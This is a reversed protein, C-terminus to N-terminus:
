RLEREGIGVARVGPPGESIRVPLDAAGLWRRLLAADGALEVWTIGGAASGSGPDRIGQERSLFFPLFPRRMAEALGALRATLGRRTITTISIDLRAAVPEVDEVAIAWAMLGDGEHAIRAAVASGLASSAAEEPDCVALLELYGDGLPMIRNHTGLGEHRAGAAGRGGRVGARRAPAGGRPPPASM